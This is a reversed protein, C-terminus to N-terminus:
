RESTPDLSDRPAEPLLTPGSLPLKVVFVAGGAGQTPADEFTIEGGHEVVIREVIALGLGTGEAKTTAYPEISIADTAFLEKQATEFKGQRCLAVLRGAIEQTTMIKESPKM